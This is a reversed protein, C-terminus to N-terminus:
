GRILVEIVEDKLALMVEISVIEGEEGENEGQTTEKGGRSEEEAKGPFGTQKNGHRPVDGIRKQANEEKGEGDAAPWQGGVIIEIDGEDNRKGHRKPKERGRIRESRAEIRFLPFCFGSFLALIILHMYHGIFLM